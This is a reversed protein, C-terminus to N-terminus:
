RAEVVGVAPAAAAWRRAIEDLPDCTRWAVRRRRAAKSLLHFETCGVVLSRVGYADLLAGAMQVFPEADGSRKIAQLFGHICEQDAPEPLVVLSAVEAWRAHREFVHMARVRVQNRHARFVLVLRPHLLQDRRILGVVHALEELALEFARDHWRELLSRARIQM